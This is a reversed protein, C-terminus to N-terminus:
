KVGLRKLENCIPKLDMDAYEGNLCMYSYTGQERLQEMDFADPDQQAVTFLLALLLSIM